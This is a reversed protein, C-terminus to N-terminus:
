QTKYSLIGNAGKKSLIGLFLLSYSLGEMLVRSSRQCFGLFYHANYKTQSLIMTLFSRLRAAATRRGAGTRVAHPPPCFFRSTCAYAYACRRRRASSAAGALGRLRRRPCACAHLPNNLPLGCRLDVPWPVRRLGVVPALGLAPRINLPAHVGM